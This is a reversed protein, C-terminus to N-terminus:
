SLRFSVTRIKEPKRVVRGLRTKVPPTPIALDPKNNPLPTKSTIIPNDCSEYNNELFAPKLRDISVTDRNGNRNIIFQKTRRKIVPYPGDYPATLSPRLSDRRVFVHTSSLLDKSIFTPLTTNVRTPTPTLNKMTQKLSDAYSSPDITSTSPNVFEGPLRLTTGYVLEAACCKLDTKLSSRIGLLILPLSDTWRVTSKAMLSSKLQRHFREIIGNAIPHYSCTTIHDTGILNCLSSWLQSTFQRGRDTTISTPVGFRSIWGSVFTKAVEDATISTLPFAEPWRTFRDICTLLYRYNESPPLPGVIDIHVKDFRQKPLQFEQLPSRTHRHVKSKQCKLCNRTWQRVEKNMLPWVYRSTVLQQTARIGPHSLEHLSLFVAHRFDKPVYPRHTDTSVDCTIRKTSNPLLTDQFKLSSSNTKLSQLDADTLQAEALDNFNILSPTDMSLSNINIRSLADAVVNEKGKIYQIDSTYQVIFDMHRSERPSHRDSQSFPAYCLPRHDTFITFERGELIYRFHKIAMYIALLERSFTSYRTEAPQLSKSFFALPQWSNDHLQQLVAGVNTDSADVVLSLTADHKPHALITADILSQKAINFAHEQNSTWTIKTSKGKKPGKLLFHLPQLISSCDKIFRRYFNLMGLFERLKKQTEPVPFNKIAEIKETRPLIGNETVTHGLFTISSKGFECKNPHLVLGYDALRQFIERLHSLHEEENKSAILIDDVFPFCFTLGRCVEDIFRQFSQASNRLGFPMRIYEFLGFPTITATKHVDEPNVPIQHFAKKLDLKSFIKKGYLNASFDMINPINYRDPVTVANLTRYDGCPRWDDIDKSVMHLPSSWPSKSQRIIGLQLMHDFERRAASLKQPALRRAKCHVPPGKTIIHHTVNHKVSTESYDSKLLQPFQHLLKEYKCINNDSKTNVLSNIFSISNPVIKTLVGSISIDTKQDRLCKARLDVILGFHHLFDAGLIPQQVDAIIFIWKFIRRLGLSLTISKEGYTHITAGNAAFLQLSSPKPRSFDNSRPLISLGAGTDVLFKYKSLPDRIYLARTKIMHVNVTDLTRKLKGPIFLSHQM